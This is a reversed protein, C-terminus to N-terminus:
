GAPTGCHGTQKRHGKWYRHLSWIAHACFNPIKVARCKPVCKGGWGRFYPEVGPLVSGEFDFTLGQRHVDQIMRDILLRGLLNMPGRRADARMGSALYYGCGRDWVLLSACLPQAGSQRIRYLRGADHAVVERWWARMAEWSSEEKFGKLRATELLVGRCSELDDTTELQAGCEQLVAAAKRLDRRHGSSMASQWQAVGAPPIQYTYGVTVDFGNWLFPMADGFDPSLIFDYMGMRPSHELLRIMLNKEESMAEAPNTKASLRILPGNYPTYSPRRCATTGLFKAPTLAMGAEIRGAGDRLVLISLRDSLARLHWSEHFLTGGRAQKVFRDWQDYQNEPLLEPV